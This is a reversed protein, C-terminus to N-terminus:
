ELLLNNEEITPNDIDMEDPVNAKIYENVIVAAVEEHISENLEAPKQTKRDRWRKVRERTARRRENILHLQLEPPLYQETEKAKMRRNKADIAKRRKYEEYRGTRKLMDTHKKARESNERHTQIQFSIKHFTSHIRM